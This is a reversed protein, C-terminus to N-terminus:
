MPESFDPQDRISRSTPITDVSAVSLSDITSLREHQAVGSTRAVPTANSTRAHPAVSSTRAMPTTCTSRANSRTELRVLNGERPKADQVECIQM